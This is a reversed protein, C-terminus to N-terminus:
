RRSRAAAWAELDAELTTWHDINPDGFEHLKALNGVAKYGFKRQYWAITGPRDANTVVRTCGSELMAEM